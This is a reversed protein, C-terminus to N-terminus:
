VVSKRDLPHDFEVPEIALEPVPADNDLFEAWEITGDVRASTEDDPNTVVVTTQVSPLEAMLQNVVSTRDHWQGNYQYGSVALLVVPEVQRFRDLVSTAGFDPSCCTWTAGISATALFAAITDPMHTLYAAVRDGKGVGLRRLGAAIRAVRDHLEGYTVERRTRESVFVLALHDDRRKLVQDAYNLTSDPFWRTAPMPDDTVAVPGRTGVVGCFDWISIWFEGLHDVSWRWLDNYGNVHVDRHEALWAIYAAMQSRARRDDSPEWLLQGEVVVKREDADGRESM